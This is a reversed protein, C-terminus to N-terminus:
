IKAMLGDLPGNWRGFILLQHLASEIPIIQYVVCLEAYKSSM